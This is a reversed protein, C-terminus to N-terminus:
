DNGQLGLGRQRVVSGMQKKEESTSPQGPPTMASTGDRHPHLNLNSFAAWLQEATSSQIKWKPSLPMLTLLKVQSHSTAITAASVRELYFM